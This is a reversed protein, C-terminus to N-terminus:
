GQLWSINLLSALTLRVEYNVFIRPFDKVNAQDKQCLKCRFCLNHHLELHDESEALTFSNPCFMCYRKDTASIM